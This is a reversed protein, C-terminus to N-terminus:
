LSLQIGVNFSRVPPFHGNDNGKGFIDGGSIEPDYGSYNTITLLNQIGAFLRCSEIFKTTQLMKKSFNYGIQINKLRVYDGKEIWRDSLPNTNDNPGIVARPTTTSHNQPTWPVLNAPMNSTEDMKELWYKTNNYILNGFVGTVFMSFDFNKYECSFQIGLEVDPFPSGVYQRDNQDIKGDHNYDVYKIDGPKANPQIMTTVTKGTIPDTSSQTYAYIEDKSQFIGATKIVYFDGVSRGVESRNVGDTGGYRFSDGLKLVTNRITTLNLNVNYKFDSKQEKFGLTAEFGRNNISGYNTWPTIDTGQTWSIPLQVLLDKSDATFYEVSGYLKSKLATFDLGINLTTKSEWHLNPNARGKQIAGPNLTQNAGFVGGDGTTIYTAYDYDGIAQQDGITGYSARFKLDDVYKKAPAFFDEESIRWGLSASPFVGYRDNAGFRSSGDRRINAQILYKDAYSYNIRGLMSLMAYESDSGSMQMDTSGSSLVWFGPVVNHVTSFQSQYKTDQATYGALIDFAHKGIKKNYTLTNELILTTFDGRNDNLQNTYKSVDLYRIQDFTTENRDHWAHYEIGLNSKFKLDKLIEIEAFVNGLVRNSTQVLDQTQQLGIPNSGYTQYSPSGTGWTGDANKVPIIPPMRCLDIFPYGIMPKTQSRSFLINEGLSFIGKKMGSNVRFAYRNYTPGVVVGDQSMVNGSILYNGDKNGGSVSVNYDQTNGTKFFENQWDTNQLVQGQSPEGPWQMGANEYAQRNVRLFQLSNMMDIRHAIQQIGYNSSFEIKPAGDKGKKTTIIIVGNAGRAGYLATSSADKLVQMSEVDNVNFERQGETIIMGDVVYLPGVNSFSGVGRILIDAGAGPEGSTSVSVGSVQGQLAQGLGPSLNKKMEKTDVIGVAGTLDKKRQTGYAVVVVEDLRKTNELLIIKVTSTSILSITQPIYGLYSFTIKAKASGTEINFKGDVDTITGRNTGDVMVNVGILPTGQQDTVIGSVRGALPTQANLTISQFLLSCVIIASFFRVIFFHKKLLMKMNNKSM